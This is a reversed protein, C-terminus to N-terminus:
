MKKQWWIIRRDDGVSCFNHNDIIHLGNVSHSHGGDIIMLKQVLQLEPEIGWIKITKDRSATILQGDIVKMEYITEKHVPWAQILTEEQWDWKKVHGDKGCSYLFNNILLLKNAGLNHAHFQHELEFENGLLIRINGDKATLAIRENDLQYIGRIKGCAYHHKKIEALNEHSLFLLEGEETGVIIYDSTILFSHIAKECVKRQLLIKKQQTDIVYLEGKRTGIYLISQHLKLCYSTNELQIAFRDQQGTALNWKLAFKDGATTYVSFGDGDVSYIPSGHERIELKKTFIM